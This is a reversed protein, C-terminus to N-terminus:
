SRLFGCQTKAAGAAASAVERERREEARWGSIISSKAVRTEMAVHILDDQALLFLLLPSPFSHSFQHPVTHAHLFNLPNVSGEDMDTHGRSFPCQRLDSIWYFYHSFLIKM